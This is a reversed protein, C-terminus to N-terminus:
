CCPVSGFDWSRDHEEPDGNFKPLPFGIQKIKEIMTEGFLHSHKEFFNFLEETIVWDMATPSIHNFRISIRVENM